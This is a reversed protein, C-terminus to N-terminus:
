VISPEIKRFAADLKFQCIVKNLFLCALITGFLYLEGTFSSFIVM